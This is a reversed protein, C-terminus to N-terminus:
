HYTSTLNFQIFRRAWDLWNLSKNILPLSYQNKITLNNFGRYNVCLQSYENLKKVFFIPANTFSKFPKIFSNALNTEIYTKLIKLKVLGLSYILKYSLQHGKILDITHNSIRTYELLEIVLDKSFM